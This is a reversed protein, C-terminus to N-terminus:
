CWVFLNSLPSRGVPGHRHSSSGLCRFCSWHSRLGRVDFGFTPVSVFKILSISLPQTCYHHPRCHNVSDLTLCNRLQASLNCCLRLLMEMHGSWHLFIDHAPFSDSKVVALFYSSCVLWDSHSLTSIVLLIACFELTGSLVLVIVNSPSASDLSWPLPISGSLQLYASAAGEIQVIQQM